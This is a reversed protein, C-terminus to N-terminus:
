NGMGDPIRARMLLRVLKSRYKLCLKSQLLQELTMCHVAQLFHCNSEEYTRLAWCLM